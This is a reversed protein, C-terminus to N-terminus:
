LIAFVDATGQPFGDKKSRERIVVPHLRGNKYGCGCDALVVTRHMSGHEYSVLRPFFIERTAASIHGHVSIIKNKPVKFILDGRSDRYDQKMGWTMSNETMNKVDSQPAHCFYVLDTVHELKTHRLFEYQWSEKLRNLYDKVSYAPALNDDLMAGFMDRCTTLGDNWTWLDIYRVTNGNDFTTGTGEVSGILMEDHNGRLAIAGKEVREKVLELVRNHDLGRDIFDGLFVFTVVDDNKILGEQRQHAIWADCDRLKHELSAADGHVDAIAIYWRQIM